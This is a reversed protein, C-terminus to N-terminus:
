CCATNVLSLCRDMGAAPKSGVIGARSCGCVWAESRAAVPIPWVGDKIDHLPMEHILLIKQLYICTKQSKVYGSFHFWPEDNFLFLKRDIERERWWQAQWKVFNLRTGCDVDSNFVTAASRPIIVCFCERNYPLGTISIAINGIYRWIQGPRGCAGETRERDLISYLVLFRTMDKHIEEKSCYMLSNEESNITSRTPYTTLVDSMFCCNTTVWLILFVSIWANRSM